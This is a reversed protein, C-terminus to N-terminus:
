HMTSIKNTITSLKTGENDVFTDDNQKTQSFKHVKTELHVEISLKTSEKEKSQIEYAPSIKNACDPRKSVVYQYTTLKHCNLYIHFGILYLNSLLIVASLVGMIITLTQFLVYLGEGYINELTDQYDDASYFSYYVIYISSAVLILEAICLFSIMFVFYRYNAEGICNNVWKCHHDFGKTCRNCRACHKSSILVATNCINCFAVKHPQSLIRRILPNSGLNYTQEIRM